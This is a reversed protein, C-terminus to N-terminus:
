ARQCHGSGVDSRAEGGDAGGGGGGGAEAWDYRLKMIM